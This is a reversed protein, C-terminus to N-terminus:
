LEQRRFSLWSIAYLLLVFAIAAVLPGWFVGPDQGLALARAPKGLGQPIYDGVVPIVAVLGTVLFAVIGFGAAAIQSRTLVSGLFTLAAYFVLTIWLLATMVIWGVAPLWTDFLLGTYVYGFLCGLATAIALTLSLAALKSALFAARSAPKTLVMGATGNAKETAVSGMALLIATLIGFQSLNKLIQDISDGPTPNGIANALAAYQAGGLSKIIEPTYRAIAPSSMGLTLFVIAVVPLRYTRIQERMEKAVLVAFGMM